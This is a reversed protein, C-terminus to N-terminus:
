SRLFHLILALVGCLIIALRKQKKAKTQARDLHVNKRAM